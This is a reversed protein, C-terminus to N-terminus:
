RKKEMKPLAFAHIMGVVVAPIEVRGNAYKQHYRKRKWGAGSPLFFGSSKKDDSDPFFFSLFCM